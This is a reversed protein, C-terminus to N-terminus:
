GGKELKALVAEVVARRSVYKRKMAEVDDESWGMIMAVQGSSIGAVVLNTAATRRLDHFTRKVGAAKVAEAFSSRLGDATWPRKGRQTTLIIPGRKEIRKLLAQCSKTIPITVYKSRKSTLFGFAGEREHNWALKILDSQRLGTHLALEITWRLEKSAHEFVAELEDATWIADSKDARHIRELKEAHNASVLARAEAWSLLRKLVSLAMDATRPTSAMSDHWEAFHRKIRSDEIIAIPTTGWKAEITDLHKRYARKTHDSLREFAPAARYKVIVARLIGETPAKRADHAAKFSAIYEASGPAGSLRPGGRWAYHYAKGRAKVVHVGKLRVVVM